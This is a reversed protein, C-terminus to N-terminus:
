IGLFNSSRPSFFFIPKNATQYFFVTLVPSKQRLIHRTPCPFLNSFSVDVIQIAANYSIFPFATFILLYQSKIRFHSWFPGFNRFFELSSGFIHDFISVIRIQLLVFYLNHMGFMFFNDFFFRLFSIRIILLFRIIIFVISSIYSLRTRRLMFKSGTGLLLLTM